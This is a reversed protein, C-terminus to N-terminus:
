VRVPVPPPQEEPGHQEIGQTAGVAPREWQTAGTPVHWYYTRESDNVVEWGDPLEEEKNVSVNKKRRQEVVAYVDQSTGGSSSCNLSSSDASPKPSQTARLAAEIPTNDWALEDDVDEYNQRKGRDQRKQKVKAM